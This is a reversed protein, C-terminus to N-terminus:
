GPSVAFNYTRYLRAPDVGTVPPNFQDFRIATNTGVYMNTGWVVGDVTPDPTAAAYDGWRCANGRPFCGVPDLSVFGGNPQEGQRSVALTVQSGLMTNAPDGPGRSRAHIQVANDLAAVNYHIAASRGTRDPSIAGNFLHNNPDFPNVQAADATGAQVPNSPPRLGPSVVQYWRVVARRDNPDATPPSAITHQTWMEYRGSDANRVGVAQYLRTDLTDIPNSNRQPVNPPVAFDGVNITAGVRNVNRLRANNRPGVVRWLSIRNGAFGNADMRRETGLVYGGREAATANVVPVPTWAQGMGGATANVQLNEFPRMRRSRQTPCSTLQDGVPKATVVLRSGVFVEDDPNAPDRKDFVNSGIIIHRRSVALKPYDDQFQTRGTMRMRCWNTSLNDPTATLSWGFVLFNGAERDGGTGAANQSAAAAYFFRQTHPDWVVQPDYVDRFGTFAMLNRFGIRTLDRRYLAMRSNIVEVYRTDGIAGHPDPPVNTSLTGDAQRVINTLHTQGTGQLFTASFGSTKALALNTRNFVGAPASRLTEPPDAIEVAESAVQETSPGIGTTGGGVTVRFQRTETHGAMTTAIATVTTLGSPFDLPDLTWTRSLGCGTCSQEVYDEQEGDVLFEISKVGASSTANVTLPYKTGDEALTQDRKDYLTGAYTAAPPSTGSVIRYVRRSPAEWYYTTQKGSPDTIVTRDSFYAFRTTPGDVTAGPARTTYSTVSQRDKAGGYTFRVESGDPRTVKILRKDWFEGNPGRETEYTYRTVKSGPATATLLNNNADYTYTWTSGATQIERIRHFNPVGPVDERIVNSVKGLADTVVYSKGDAHNALSIVNGAGDIHKKARRKDLGSFVWRTGTENLTVWWDTTGDTARQLTADLGIGREYTGDPKRKFLVPTYAPGNFRVNGDPMDWVSIDIADLTGGLGFGNSGWWVSNHYRTLETGGPADAPREQTRFLLNGNAVNVSVEPLSNLAGRDLDVGDTITGDPHWFSYQRLSGSRQTYWVQLVPWQAQAGNSSTFEYVNDPASCCREVLLGNNPSAGQVWREVLPQLDRFYNWGTGAQIGRSAFSTVDGGATTWSNTGDYRSWSAAETWSRAMERVRLSGLNANEKREAYLALEANFVVSDAPVAAAVDFRLLARHDHAFTNGNLGFGAALVGATGYSTTPNDASLYTDAVSGKIIASGEIYTITPDVVVPFSRDDDELWAEDLELRLSRDGDAHLTAHRDADIREDDHGRLRDFAFPAEFRFLVDGDRVVDVAGDATDRLSMGDPLEVDFSYSSAADRRTLVLLEKLGTPRAVYALDVGPLADRYLMRDGDRAGVGSAGRLAFRVADGGAAFRVPESASAPLDSRYGNARNRAAFGDLPSDGLENDIAQLNGRANKFHIPEPFIKVTRGGDETAYTRSTPTREEVIEEVIGPQPGPQAAESRKVVDDKDDSSVVPQALLALAVLAMFAAPAIRLMSTKGRREGRKEPM